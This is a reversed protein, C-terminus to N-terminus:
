RGVRRGASRVPTRYERESLMRAERAHVAPEHTAERSTELTEAVSRAVAPSASRARQRLEREAVLLAAGLQREFIRSGKEQRLDNWDTGAERGSFPPVLVAGGVAAAAAEAKVRGVNTKFRGDPGRERERRHDNDAAILIPRAADTARFARAVAELNGANFAVAVPLGTAEHLTAATAYGEAVLLPGATALDGLLHHGGQVRGGRPFSKRGDADISQAGLFAGAVDRVPVLLQGPGSWRQVDPAPTPAPAAGERVAGARTAEVAEADVRAGPPLLLPGAAAVRVGYARVGKRVLYPHDAPAPAAADFFAAVAQATLQALQDRQEARAHRRQAAEAALRARDQAGLATAARAAKWTTAIGTRYNQVFGAPHGDLHGVYAGSRAGARDGEVPVRRLQGDMVPLGEVRLGAERLADAFEARPDRDTAGALHVPVRGPMWRELAGLDTGAPAFWAKAAKDWRAGFAKAEDKEAYPVALYVRADARLDATPEASRAETHGLMADEGPTGPVRAGDVLVPTRVITEGVNAADDATRDAASADARVPTPEEVRAPLPPTIGDRVTPGVTEAGGIAHAVERVQEFALVLAAIKEADAAARFVERPDEELARIWSGVYAAHRTPDHGILLQSGVMLSAIEARLEERAYGQSGFPHALDRALRSGHGTWHGLEHLATAYYLDPTAFQDREPLTIRDLLPTYCARNGREHRIDAGSNALVAEAREHREWETALLRGPVPPGLHELGDIQERNFVAASFVRPRQYQVTRTVAKGEGDRVPQGDADRLPESGQWKWYVITSAREGRRVQGGIEAAQRYTMWRPDAYGKQLGVALLWVANMGHYDNGTTPNYPLVREGPQWPQQWPAVGERLQQILTDAVTRAYDGQWDAREDAAAEGRGARPGPRTM